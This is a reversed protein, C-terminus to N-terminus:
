NELVSIIQHKYNEFSLIEPIYLTKLKEKNTEKIAIVTVIIKKINFEEGKKFIEYVEGLGGKRPFFTLNGFALSEAVAIGFPEERLFPFVCIDSISLIKDVEQQFELLVVNKLNYKKIIKKIRQKYLRNKLTSPTIDGALLLFLNNYNRLTDKMQEIFELQGKSPHIRSIITIIKSTLPLNFEKKILEPSHIRYTEPYIPEYIITGKTTHVFKHKITKSQYIIQHSFKQAFIGLALNLLNPSFFERIYWIHKRRTLKAVFVPFTLLLSNSCVIDIKKHTVYFTFFLATVVSLLIFIPFYLPSFSFMLVPLPFIKVSVNLEKLKKVLPGHSPIVVTIDVVDKSAKIFNILGREAGYIFASANFIILKKM